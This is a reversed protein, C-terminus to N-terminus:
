GDLAAVADAALPVLGDPSLIGAMIELAKSREGLDTTRDLAEAAFGSVDDLARTCAFYALRRPDPQADGYSSFFAARGDDFMPAFALVGVTLFMLDRERDSLMADDWDVLWVTGAAGVLVNGLHPDGHCLVHDAPENRFRAAVDDAARELRTITPLAAEWRRCVESAVPDAAADPATREAVATVQHVRATITDHRHGERPLLRAVDPPVPVDHVSRLLRGFSSWQEPRLGRDLAREDSVWPVVSLRHGDRESWPRGDLTRVPAPVGPVGSDALRASVLLGTPRGGRSLKVAFRGGGDAVAEWTRAAEDAGSRVRRLSRVALGFDAQVAAAVDVTM